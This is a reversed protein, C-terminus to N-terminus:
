FTALAARKVTGAATRVYLYSADWFIEGQNGAESSSAPTHATRLRLYSGSIDVQTTPATVGFGVNGSAFVAGYNNQAGTPAEVYLSVGSVCGSGIAGSRLHLGICTTATANTGLQPPGSVAVTAAQTIASAGAFAYTPADIRVARLLSMAGTNFQVTRALNVFVDNMETGGALTTHAAGTVVVANPTGATAVAQTVTVKPAVLAGTFTAGALAAYNAPNVVAADLKGLAALVTDTPLVVPTGATTTYGTLLTSRVGAATFYKNTAGETLDDTTAGGSVVGTTAKLVGSLAGVALAPLVVPTNVQLAGGSFNLTASGIVAATLTITGAACNGSADRQVLYSATNASAAQVSLVGGSYVVPGTVTFPNAYSKWLGAFDAAAPAVIPTTTNRFAIYNLSGGPTLSFGTGNSDTAYAVYLYAGPGAAGAGGPSGPAGDTGVIKFWLGAFDSAQTLPASALKFAIYKLDVAPTLSFGTGYADSAFAFYPTQGNSGDDGPAGPAGIYPRWLGTFDSAQTLVTASLKFAIYNLGAAPTLSFGTGSADSAYAFYPTLGDEGNTGGAAALRWALPNAGPKQNSTTQRALYLSGEDTVLMGATYVLESAWAGQFLNSLLTLCEGLRVLHTPQTAPSTQTVVGQVLTSNLVSM